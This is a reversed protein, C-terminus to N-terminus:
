RATRSRWVAVLASGIPEPRAEGGAMDRFVTRRREGMGTSVSMLMECRADDLDCGNREQAHFLRLSCNSGRRERVTYLDGKLAMDNKELNLLETHESV